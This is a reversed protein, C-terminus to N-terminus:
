LRTQTSEKLTYVWANTQEGSDLTVDALKRQYADGEFEDLLPLNSSLNSSTFVFGPVTDGSKDLKIAPYGMTAGWGENHLTGKISAEVFKGGINKLIHENPRGPCLTGYVFLNNSM